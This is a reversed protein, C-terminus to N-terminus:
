KPGSPPVLGDADSNGMRFSGLSNLRVCCPGDLPYITDHIDYLTTYKGLYVGSYPISTSLSMTQTRNRGISIITPLFQGGLSRGVSQGVSGVSRGVLQNVSQCISRGFSRVSRGVLRCVLHGVSWSVLRGVSGSVSWDISQGVWWGVSRGVM